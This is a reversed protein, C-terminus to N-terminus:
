DNYESQFDGYGSNANYGNYYTTSGATPASGGRSGGGSGFLGGGNGILSSAGQGVGALGQDIGGYLNENGAGLLNMGYQYNREYKQRKNWDWAKDKYQALRLRNQQRAQADAADLGLTANNTNAQITGVSALGGRRNQAQQIANAQQRQINTMAQQYQESPMGEAAAQTIEGPIAYEPMPNDRLIRKGERRQKGGRLSKILGGVLQAGGGIIGM